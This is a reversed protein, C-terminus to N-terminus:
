FLGENSRSLLLIKNDIQSLITFIESYIPSKKNTYTFVVYDIDLTALSKQIIPCEVFINM